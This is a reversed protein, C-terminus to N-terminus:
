LPRLRGMLKHMREGPGPYTTEWAQSQRLAAEWREQWDEAPVEDLLDDTTMGRSVAADRVQVALAAAAIAENSMKDSM